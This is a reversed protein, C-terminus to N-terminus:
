PVEVLGRVILLIEGETVGRAQVSFGVSRDADPGDGSRSATETWVVQRDPWSATTSYVAPVGRVDITATSTPPASNVAGAAFNILGGDARYGIRYRVEEGAFYAYELMVISRDFRDPLRTPRLVVVRSGVASKVRRWAEAEPLEILTFESEPMVIPATPTDVLARSPVYAGSDCADPQAYCLLVALIAAARPM